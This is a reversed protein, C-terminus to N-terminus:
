YSFTLGYKQFWTLMEVYSASAYQHHLGHHGGPYLVLKVVKGAAKMETFFQQVTQWAVHHDGTGQLLLVPATITSVDPSEKALVAQSPLTGYSRREGVWQNFFRTGPQANAAQWPMVTRLGVFPSIAVVARVGPLLSAVKLAVGGGLSYGVLYLRQRDIPVLAEAARIGALTDLAATYLGRVQGASQLYGQYEPYLIAYSASALRSVLAASYGFNYHTIGEDSVFGGHLNVLLPVPRRSHPVTLYAAVRQGQATYFVQYLTVGAIPYKTVRTAVATGAVLPQPGTPTAKASGARCGAAAVVLAAGLVVARVTRAGGM